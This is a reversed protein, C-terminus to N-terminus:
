PSFLWMFIFWYTYTYYLGITILWVTHCQYLPLCMLSSSALPPGHRCSLCQVVTRCDWVGCTKLNAHFFIGDYFDLLYCVTFISAVWIVSFQGCKRFCLLEVVLILPLLHTTCSFITCFWLRPNTPPPANIFSFRIFVVCFIQLSPESPLACSILDGAGVHLAPMIYADAAGVRLFDCLPIGSM